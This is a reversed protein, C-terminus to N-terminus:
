VGFPGNDPGICRGIQLWQWQWQWHAGAGFVSTWACEGLAWKM